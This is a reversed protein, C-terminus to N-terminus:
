LHQDDGLGIGISVIIIFMETFSGILLEVILTVIFWNRRNVRHFTWTNISFFDFVIITDVSNYRVDSYEVGREILM